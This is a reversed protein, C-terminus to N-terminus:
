GHLRRVRFRYVAATPDVNGAQDFAKVRVTHVGAGFRRSLVPACFRFLGGDVRCIFGAAADNSGFRFVARAGRGHTRLNRRPRAIFFTRPPFTDVIFPLERAGVRGSLDIGQVLLGHLGDELPEEPTFPSSCPALADGDLSCSFTVPRNATFAISPTSDNTAAAANVFSIKPPLAIEDIARYADILGAGVADAGAGAVPKATSRLGAAIEAPTPAPNAQRALAVVGAAHPAAASTGCFRFVNPVFFTTRVCDTAAVDPKAITEPPVLAAAPTKGSVPGFYHTVPGRSTFPEAVNANGAPVAAVTIVGPAGAHGYVTPGVVDDPPTSKPYETASVGSGNEALIVKVRPKQEPNAKYNCGKEEEQQKKTSFCRDIALMVKAPANTKNEWSLVEVPKGKINDNTGGEVATLPKENEGLLYADLDAEVGFWPEAWQVDVLLTEEAKVIIGFTDDVGPGPDFDLCQNPKAPATAELEPACKNSDRFKPTEWSAIENEGEFLNDNGASTLYVVGKASVEGIAVAVPGDQFFPETFYSVDDVIVDAGAAALGKIHEALITEGGVATAFDISAGPALDHVIQAM